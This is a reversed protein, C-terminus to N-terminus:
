RSSESNAAVAAGELHRRSRVKPTSKRSGSLRTRWIQSSTWSNRATSTRRMFWTRERRRSNRSRYQNGWLLPAKSTDSDRLNWFQNEQRQSTWTSTLEPCISWRGRTVDILHRRWFGTGASASLRAELQARVHSTYSKSSSRSGWLWQIWVVSPLSSKALRSRLVQVGIPSWSGRWFGHWSTGWIVTAECTMLTSISLRSATSTTSRTTSTSSKALFNMM